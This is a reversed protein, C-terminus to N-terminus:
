LEGKAELECLRLIVDSLSEGPGRLARLTNLANPELWILREGKENPDREFSVTGLPLRACVADFAAATIAIRIMARRGPDEEAISHRRSPHPIIQQGTLARTPLTRFLSGLRISGM